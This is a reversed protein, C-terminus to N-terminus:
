KYESSDIVAINTSGVGKIPYHFYITFDGPKDEKKNLNHTSMFQGSNTYYHTSISGKTLYTGTSASFSYTKNKELTFVAIGSKTYKTVLPISDGVQSINIKVSDLEYYTKYTDYRWICTSITVDNTAGDPNHTEKKCSFIGVALLLTICVKKM